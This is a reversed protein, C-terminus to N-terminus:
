TLSASAMAGGSAVACRSSSSRYLDTVLGHCVDKLRLSRLPLFELVKRVMQQLQVEDSFVPSEIVIVRTRYCQQYECKRLRKIEVTDWRRPQGSPVVLLLLKKSVGDADTLTMCMLVGCVPMKFDEWELLGLIAGFHQPGQHNQMQLLREAQWGLDAHSPQDSAPLWEWFVGSGECVQWLPAAPLDTGLCSPPHPGDGLFEARWKERDITEWDVLFVDVAPLTCGPAGQQLASDM